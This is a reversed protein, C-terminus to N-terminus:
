EIGAARRTHSDKKVWRRWNGAEKGDVKAWVGAVAVSVFCEAVQSPLNLPGPQSSGFMKFYCFEGSPLFM